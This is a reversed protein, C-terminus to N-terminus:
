KLWNWGRFHIMASILQDTSICASSEAWAWTRRRHEPLGAASHHLWLLQVEECPCQPEWSAWCSCSSPWSARYLTKRQVFTQNNSEWLSKKKKKKVQADREEKEALFYSAKRAESDRILCIGRIRPGPRFLAPLNGERSVWLSFMLVFTSSTLDVM